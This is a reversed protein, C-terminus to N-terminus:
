GCGRISGWRKHAYSHLLSLSRPSLTGICGRLEYEGDHRRKNLTVFDPFSQATDFMPLPAAARPAPSLAHDIYDFCHLCHQPTAM